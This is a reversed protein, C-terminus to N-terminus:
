ATLQVNEVHYRDFPVGSKLVGLALCLLKRMAAGIIVMKHKDRQALRECFDKILPNFRKACIAPFYLARRLSGNGVKCLKSRRHVSTGSEGKQPSLGAYAALSRTSSFSQINEGLLKAATLDGIGPITTLLDQQQNLGPHQNIHQQIRQKLAAIQEDIFAVHQRLMELVQESPVGSTLRNNEQTRMQQLAELHHVMAQLEHVEPPPPTWLPPNQTACFDAILAADMKDTKNRALKSKAYGHIRVPNVVSVVHGAQYLFVALKEWYRGTAEMCAHVQTVGLKTLWATLEAFADPHNRFTHSRKKNDRLLVVQYTEKAIDIGLVPLMM